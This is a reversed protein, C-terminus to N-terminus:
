IEQPKWLLILAMGDYPLVEDPHADAYAFAVDSLQEKAFTLLMRVPKQMLVDCLPSLALVIEGHVEMLQFPFLKCMFPKDAGLRCGSENDLVPCPFSDGSIDPIRFLFSETEKTLFSADPLFTKVKRCIDANLVPTNWVDYCEFVCCQRCGACEAHSLLKSLM